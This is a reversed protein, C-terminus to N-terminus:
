GEPSIQSGTMDDREHPLFMKFAALRPPRVASGRVPVFESVINAGTFKM